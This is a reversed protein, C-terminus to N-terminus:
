EPHETFDPFSVMQKRLDDQYRSRARGSVPSPYTMLPYGHNNAKGAGMVFHWAFLMYSLSLHQSNKTVGSKKKRGSKSADGMWYDLYRELQDLNRKGNKISQLDWINTELANVSLKSAELPVPFFPHLSQRWIELAEKV